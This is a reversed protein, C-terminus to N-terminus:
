IYFTGGGKRAATAALASHTKLIFRETRADLPVDLECIMATPGIQM